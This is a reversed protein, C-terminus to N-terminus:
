NAFLMINVTLKPYDEGNGLNCILQSCRHRQVSDAIPLCLHKTSGQGKLKASYEEHLLNKIAVTVM